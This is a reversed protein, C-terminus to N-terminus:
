VRLVPNAMLREITGAGELRIQPNFPVATEGIDGAKGGLLNM